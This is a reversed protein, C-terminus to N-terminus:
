FSQRPHGFGEETLVTGMRERRLEWGNTGVDAYLCEYSPGSMILAIVHSGANPLKQILIRKGDITGITNPINWKSYFSTAIELWNEVTSPTKLHQRELVQDGRMSGNCDSVCYEEWDSVPLFPVSVDRRNGLIQHRPCTKRKACYIDEYPDRAKNFPARCDGSISPVQCSADEHVRWVWPHRGGSIRSVPYSLGGIGRKTKDVRSDVSTM